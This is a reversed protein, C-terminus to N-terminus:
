RDTRRRNGSYMAVRNDQKKIAKDVRALETVIKRRYAKLESREKKAKNRAWVCFSGRPRKLKM